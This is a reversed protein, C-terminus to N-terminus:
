KRKKEEHMIEIKKVGKLNAGKCVFGISGPYRKALNLADAENWAIDPPIAVGSFSIMIWYTEIDKEKADILKFYDKRCPQGTTLVFPRVSTNDINTTKLFMISRFEKVTLKDKPFDPHAIIVISNRDQEALILVLAHNWFILNAIFITILWKNM